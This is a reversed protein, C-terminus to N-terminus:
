PKLNGVKQDLSNSTESLWRILDNSPRTPSVRAKEELEFEQL